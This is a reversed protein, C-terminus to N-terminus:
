GAAAVAFAAPGLFDRLHEVHASAQLKRLARVELRRVRKRTLRQLMRAGDPDELEALGFRRCLAAQEIDALELRMVAWLMKRFERGRTEREPDLADPDPLRARWAESEEDSTLPRGFTFSLPCTTSWLMYPDHNPMTPLLWGPRAHASGADLGHAGRYRPRLPAVRRSAPSCVRVSNTQRHRGAGCCRTTPSLGADPPDELGGVDSAWVPQDLSVAQRPMTRLREVVDADVRMQGAVEAAAPRWGGQRSLEGEIALMDAQREQVHVPIRVTRGTATVARKMAQRIWWAAYTSFRGHAPDFREVAKMLGINGEQILDPFSVGLDSRYM